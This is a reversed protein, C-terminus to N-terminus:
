GTPQFIYGKNSGNVKIDIQNDSSCSLSANTTSNQIKSEIQSIPKYLSADQTKTNYNSNLNSSLTSIQGSLTSVDSSLSNTVSVNAKTNLSSDIVTKNYYNATLNQSVTTIDTANQSSSAEVNTM